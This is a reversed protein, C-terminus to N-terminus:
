WKIFEQRLMACCRWVDDYMAQMDAKAAEGRRRLRRPGGRLRPAGAQHRPAPPRLEGRVRAAAAVQGGEDQAGGQRLAPRAGAGPGPLPLGACAPAPPPPPSPSVLMPPPQSPSILMPTPQTPSILM